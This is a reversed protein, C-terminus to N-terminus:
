DRCRFGGWWFGRLRKSRFGNEWGGFVVGLVWGGLRVENEREAKDLVSRGHKPVPLREITRLDDGIVRKERYRSYGWRYGFIKEGFKHVADKLSVYEKEAM